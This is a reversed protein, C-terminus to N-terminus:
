PFTKKFIKLSSISKIIKHSNIAPFHQMATAKINSALFFSESSIEVQYLTFVDIFHKSLRCGGYM